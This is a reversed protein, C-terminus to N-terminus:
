LQRTFRAAAWGNRTKLSTLQLGVSQAVAEIEPLDHEYFGSIVLTGVPTMYEVYTPIERLLINRNINALVVDYQAAPEDEITGQRVHVVDELHNLQVNELANETAWDEIDFASVYTAGRLAAMIALIGTGSGVDLVQKGSQDIELQHALMMWTTEHHGTGFSMKPNIEIIYEYSSADMDHFSARVLVRGEVDIPPYNREWEANWNEKELYKISYDVTGTISEYQQMIHQLADGNFGTEPIYGLLCTDEEVFSEFGIEALEAVFIDHVGPSVCLKLEYYNM